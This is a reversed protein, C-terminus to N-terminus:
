SQCRGRGATPPADGYLKAARTSRAAPGCCSSAALRASPIAPSPLQLLLLKAHALSAEFPLPSSSPWPPAPM